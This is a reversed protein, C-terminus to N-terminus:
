RRFDAVQLPKGGLRLIHANEVSELTLVTTGEEILARCLSETGGGRSAHPVFVQEALEAVFRNRRASLEKTARRSANGFPSAILLRGEEIPKNWESPLRMGEICRAPCVVVPQGGRLLLGLCEEEMPSHFGGVIVVGADRLSRIADYTKLIISGPCKVSCILGLMRHRLIGPDGILSISNPGSDELGKPYQREGKKVWTLSGPTSRGVPVSKAGGAGDNKRQM